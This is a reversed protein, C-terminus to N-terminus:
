KVKFPKYGIKFFIGYIFIHANRMKRVKASVRGRNEKEVAGKSKHRGTKHIKNSQKFAGARHAEGGSAMALIARFFLLILIGHNKKRINLAYYINKVFVVTSM